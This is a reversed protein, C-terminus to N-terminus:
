QEVALGLELMEDLPMTFSACNDKGFGIVAEAFDVARIVRWPAKGIETGAPIVIDRTTLYKKSKPM